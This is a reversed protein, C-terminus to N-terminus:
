GPQVVNHSGRRTGFFVWTTIIGVTYLGATTFFVPVFSYNAQFWGSLQPSAVWGFQFAISTLSAALAQVNFPVQELVFTQYVPGSLNMLGLRFFYAVWAIIFWLMVSGGRPVSWAAIGLLVLFPVSLSQTLVVTNIKGLKDALPPSIFQAAAMGLLGSAFLYGIVADPKGFVNRYYLNMFPMMMGAGLGIIWNPLILKGLQVRHQWLLNWPLEPSPGTGDQTKGSRIALLPGVALMSVVIMTGLALRYSITETPPANVMSGFWAPLMGGVMNGAFGAMTSLGMNFSFVYQREENSTNAMLFPAMTVQRLSMSLGAIINFLILLGRVPTLILGLYAAVSAFGSIVMIRKQSVRDAIYAAPLAMLLSAASSISTLSGLFVEDYGGLSLVYFNFLLRFVGFALGTLAGYVLVIRANPSFLRIKAAYAKLFHNESSSM